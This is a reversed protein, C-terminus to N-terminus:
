KRRIGVLRIKPKVKLDPRAREYWVEVSELKRQGGRLDLRRTFRGARITQRLPLVDDAGNEYHAVVRDFDVPGGEVRFRIAVFLGEKDGVRIKDHDSKGDINAQGLYEWKQALAPGALALSLILLAARTASTKSRM